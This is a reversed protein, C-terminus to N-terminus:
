FRLFGRAIFLVVTAVALAITISVQNTMQVRTVAARNYADWQKKSRWAMFLTAVLSLLFLTNIM